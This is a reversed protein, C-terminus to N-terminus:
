FDRGWKINSRHLINRCGWGQKKGLEITSLLIQLLHEADEKHELELNTQILPVTPNNWRVTRAGSSSKAVQNQRMPMNSSSGVIHVVGQDCDAHIASELHIESEIVWKLDSPVGRFEPKGFDVLSPCSVILVLRETIIVFKCAEKLKKCTVFIEDKLRLSGDTEVLVSTGVAEEWCYPRLPYERSLPRPLRVRFRQQRTQYIRSRNRISQATKGTVELISAAPKAVLGTIGLAIGSLVGPLGHKEAGNIPSQLLGTLGEFVENIVGKSHSEVGTQQQQVGSVAQDDFTFAVIGKHAAKSFQTAADSIAYVTNSLLSTTGQAMGTILGTPSQFISRAPVSLFDRIGLGVSRAFGMPNGIVGASGFVKYMEHLLQRTYHRMLIEQLSEVSALQHAITLQKLHIRAGEVDALAMLGRHIVSEGAALIGNRLMWPTSSFSLTVKIPCLEFMEVYIKKQRRALLYIQQWPAGIPVISPLSLRQKHHENFLPVYMLHLQNDTAYLDMSGADNSPHLFPDSLPLVRSQFRSSVSRIFGFLSLILEQELELCVDAVRLSIYEFSVLSVDKKRWKSVALCFVPEYNPSVKQLIRESPKMDDDRIVRAAPNNKHERDFSLMVPYPSSRLQNDIQLSSIQFSLKQQDLSQVLDATINKACIFLLEQPHITIVSIGIQQIFVSIREMFGIFKDQKQEYKGKDKSHPRNSKNDNLVHYSSDIVHLVKTAGEVHISIHLTREPKEPSSPLQVPNYEKVDDLAYSGLVRKGPVEVILRHPYCPEDWAYPCSTYSQVVTEFTECKQQYIRLKENSFNDVRYPMYGTEDDSVLILNTGSNGHFSGVIKEDGVSVDANQVEVRIMNLSGSLYNRMKVQTDGLHDPLFGGSWQWGPENYRVSVLLERTTDMWHLHSHEGTGLQFSFDTGKQKYCLSRSCANSIIYRPQFTIASTRGAFPAAVAGSTISMMFAQNSSAQPVLVTTSGSPPILSFSSSWLSNPMKETVHEPMCRSVRVMVEGASSTPKPSFMCARVRGRDYGSSNLDKSTLQSSSSSRSQLSNSVSNERDINCNSLLENFNEESYLPKSSSIGKHTEASDRISVIHVSSSSSRTTHSERANPNSTSSVLGLGDKNGLLVEQEAMHYCSPVICSGGIVESASESIILPFGTCNYLLFPVSIFLERAGSFADMVKEVTVYLPGNISDRDFTVVESLSFKTGGFKAKKCFIETRPFDLIATKFGHMHIELRLHHSPDVNHFSTEVESLFTTRTIGGSEITLTVADPLYNNVVLPISLVVQHIFQNKAEDKHLIQGGGAVTQKLSSKRSMVPSPLSINKVSICCRFPDSNPHAPYCAFSKLFGIKGEQSLLNSLNYVESWLHSDGVPRWRIRGAEALHLPLPLEQGPYIPDLIKPAVGFPIDFRLELPMSTANSLIVTSYLRILKSYRQVSVDFVVPVVFGANANSRHNEMNDNYSMSFDVEFYTLGVLDMSIPESPVSGDVQITIYQHRVGNAKQDFIRESFHAPKVHILQKEPTDNIYIPISSGPQVFKKNMESANFEDPSIPGQYVHYALPLSTLNQLVYPAYKGAYTYESFPSHLLKQSEPFDNPSVVLWADKIMEFTRFVCEVLSETFNVNLHASSTLHIDTLNSSSLSMEEKRIVNVECQWPEIFPEWFVKHINNYNVQLQGSVLCELKNDTANVLLLINGMLIQFLPGSCSWRGDSLLFSVKGLHVKADIKGFSLQSHGGEAVSFQVCHCFYLISHSVWVDLQDCQVDVEVHVIDMWNNVDALLLVQSIQFFPTSQVSEDQSVLVMGELKEIDSKVKVNRGDVFLESSRSCLTVAISRFVKAEVIESLDNTSADGDCEEGQYEGSVRDAIWFPYHFTIYIQESRMILSDTEQELNDPLSTSSQGAYSKFFDIVETWYSLHLWVEVSPLSIHVENSGSKEKNLSFDLVSSTSSTSKCRALVISNRLSSLELSSFSLALSSLTDNRLSASCILKMEATALPDQSVRQCPDLLISLSNIFCRVETYNISSVVPPAANEQALSRKSQLFQLVDSKFCESLDSVISFRNIIDILGQFGHFFHDDEPKLQCNGVKIMVCTNSPSSECASENECPIEVWVDACLPAILPVDVFSSYQNDKFCLFSLILDQGFLNLSHNRKALKDAHVWCEHPIDKLVDTLNRQIFTCYFQQLESKLFQGENSEVPVILVSDLIEIKYVFPCEYESETDEHGITVLQDNTDSSWDSLSCYGIIIALYEPPLICYVHQISFCLEVRSGLPGCEKKVRVNLIPSMNSVSPGWLNERLNHSSWSSSLLLGEMSCLIDFCKEYISVSSNSRSLTITGVICKSDHFHVRIGCLNVDIVLLSSTTASNGCVASAEVVSPSKLAPAHFMKSVEKISSEPSSVRCDRLSFYKRWQPSGYALSSELNGLSGANSLMVFPFRDLPISAYESSGTEVFNSFGFRQFGFGPVSKPYRSDMSSSLTDKGPSSAGYASLRDFFAILLQIVSPYCHLDGNNLCIRCEQPVTDKPHSAYQLTFCAENNGANNAICDNINDIVIEQPQLADSSQNGSSYLIRGDSKGALKSTAISLTNVLIWCEEHKSFSYGIDLQQFKLMFSSSNEQENELEVEIKMMELKFNTSFGFVPTKFGNSAANLSGTNEFPLSEFKLQVAGIYAILGMIAAYISPSFHAHVSSIIVSAELQKLISEDQILCSAFTVSASLKELIYIPSSHSPLTVTLELDNIKVEYHDYLDQIQVRPSINCSSTLFNKLTQEEDDSPQSRVDCKTRFRVSGAEFVLNHPDSIADGLPVNIIIHFITVDWVVKGHRSLIYEAKSLLRGDVNDIGNLSLLVRGHQSEFSKFVGLFDMLKLFFDADITVELPQLMGKISLEADLNSSVDVQLRFSPNDNELENKENNPKQLQLIIKKNCPYVMEGSKVIAVVAASEERFKCEITVGNLMLESIEQGYKMNRLTASIRSISFQLACIDIKDNTPADVNSLIPPNFETAEYIDKIVADSLSVAGSFQGLDDTGGAGLMGLSLWNLWGRSKGTSSNVLFEQLECEAASRYSLIDDLDLEKEMQELEWRTSEDIPQDHRLLDLKIKYLNVYKRCSSLRQGFHRWSTKKLRKRVDSLVSEQAYHWWLMKWGKVKRSLPSSWPRYRGYKNRLECMCFYDWLFLIQQLQVEDISMLLDTIEATISYQPTKSDIEGSRNVLLSMSVDCPSLISNYRKEDWRPDQWVTSDRGNNMTMLDVTGDLTGCYFELGIIEVTKNVQGGRGKAVSWSPNQKMTRLSSFKLGFINCASGSLKDHYLIHFDRISVQISDVVKATIISLFGAQNECVRKSLKALEAAALKAKKGAFERKEVEDLSWEEDDRQSACLYVNELSIVFPDWGLKKWPIKISIKGIRGQKLAFPLQLYEFAELSLEVDELFVEENWITIKLQHKHFDKVYRGLYGHLVQTVVREFM